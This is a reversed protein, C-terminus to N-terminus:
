TCPICLSALAGWAIRRHLVSRHQPRAQSTSVRSPLVLICRQKGLIHARLIPVAQYLKSGMVPDLLNHPIYLYCNNVPSKPVHRLIKDETAEQLFEVCTDKYAVCSSEARPTECWEVLLSILREHM